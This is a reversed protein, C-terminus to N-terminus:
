CHPKLVFGLVLKQDICSVIHTHFRGSDVPQIYVKRECVSDPNILKSQSVCMEQRKRCVRCTSLHPLRGMRDSVGM